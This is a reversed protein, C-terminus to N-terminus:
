RAVGGAAAHAHADQPDVCGLGGLIALLCLAARVLGAVGEARQEAGALEDGQLGIGRGLRGVAVATAEGVDIRVAAVDAGLQDAGPHDFGPLWAAGGLVAPRVAVPCGLGGRLLRPRPM